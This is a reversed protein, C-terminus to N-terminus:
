TGERRWASCWVSVGLFYRGMNEKWPLIIGQAGVNQEGALRVWKKLLPVELDSTPVDGRTVGTLHCLGPPMLDHTGEWSMVWCCLGARSPCAPWAHAGLLNPEQCWLLCLPFFFDRIHQGSSFVPNKINM